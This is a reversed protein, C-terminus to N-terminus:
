YKVTHMPWAATRYISLYTSLTGPEVPKMPTQSQTRGIPITAYSRNEDTPTPIEDGIMFKAVTDTLQTDMNRRQWVNITSNSGSSARASSTPSSPLYSPLRHLSMSQLRNSQDTSASTTSYNSRPLPPLTMGPTTNYHRM